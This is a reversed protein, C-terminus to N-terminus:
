FLCSVFVRYLGRNKVADEVAISSEVAPPASLPDRWIIKTLIKGLISTNEPSGVPKVYIFRGPDFKRALGLTVKPTDNKATNRPCERQM